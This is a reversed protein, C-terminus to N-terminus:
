NIRRSSTYNLTLEPDYTKQVVNDIWIETIRLLITLSSNNRGRMMTSNAPSSIITIEHEAGDYEAYLIFKKQPIRFYTADESYGTQEIPVNYDLHWITNILSNRQEGETVLPSVLEVMPMNGMRLATDCDWVYAQDLVQDGISWSGYFGTADGDDPIDIYTPIVTNGSDTSCSSFLACTAILGMVYFVKLHRM